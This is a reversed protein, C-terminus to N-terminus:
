KYDKVLGLDEMVVALPLVMHCVCCEIEKSRLWRECVIYLVGVEQDGCPIDKTRVYHENGDAHFRSDNGHNQHECQPSEDLAEALLLEISTETQIM